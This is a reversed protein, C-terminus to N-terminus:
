VCDRRLARMAGAGTAALGDSIGGGSFQTYHSMRATDRERLAQHESCRVVLAGDVSPGKQECCRKRKRSIFATTRMIKSNTELSM